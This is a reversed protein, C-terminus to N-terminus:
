EGKPQGQSFAERAMAPAPEVAVGEDRDGSGIHGGIGGAFAPMKSIFRPLVIACGM